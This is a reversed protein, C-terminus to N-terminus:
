IAILLCAGILTIELPHTSSAHFGSPRQMNWPHALDVLEM